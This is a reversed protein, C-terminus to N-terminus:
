GSEVQNRVESLLGGTGCTPDFVTKIIGATQLVDDDPALLLDAM